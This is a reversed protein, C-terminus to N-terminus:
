KKGAGTAPAEIAKLALNTRARQHGGFNARNSFKSACTAITGDCGPYLKAADSTGTFNLDYNLVLVIRHSGDTATSSLITRREFEPGTGSEFRGEAFWGAPLGDLTASTVTVVRGAISVVTASKVYAAQNIRCTGPAFLQYNCRAQFMFRPVQGAVSDRLSIFDSTITRDAISPKSARGTFWTTPSELDNLPVSRVEVNLPMGIAVPMLQYMPNAPVFEAHITCLERSGDATREIGDHGINMPTHPFLVGSSDSNRVTLEEHWSTFYWDTRVGGAETWFRYLWVTTTATEATAYERPLEILKLQCEAKCEATHRLEVSSGALRVYELRWAMWTSDVSGVVSTAFDVSETGDGNDTVGTVKAAFSASGERQFWVHMEAHEGWTSALGSKIKITNGDVGAVIKFAARPTPFWFGVLSGTLDDFFAGFSAIASEDDLFTTVAWGHATDVEDGWYTEANFGLATSGLNYNVEAAPANAWDQRFDFVPRSLYTSM